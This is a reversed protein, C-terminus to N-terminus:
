TYKSEPAESLHFPLIVKRVELWLHQRGIGMVVLVMNVLFLAWLVGAERRHRKRPFTRLTFLTMLTGTALSVCLIEFLSALTKEYGKYRPILLLDIITIGENKM